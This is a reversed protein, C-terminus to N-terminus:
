SWRRWKTAMKDSNYDEVKGGGAAMDAMKNDWYSKEAATRAEEQEDESMAAMKAAAEIVAAQKAARASEAEAAAVVEREAAVAAAISGLRTHAKALDKAAKANELPVAM